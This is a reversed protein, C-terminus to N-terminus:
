DNPLLSNEEEFYESEDNQNDVNLLVGASFIGGDATLSLSGHYKQAIMSVSELGIGHGIRTTRPLGNKRFKITGQYPNEVSVGITEDSLCSAGVTITRQEVPLDKVAHLANEVFNGLISCLDSDHIPIEKPLNLNWDIITDQAEALSDYHAAVADVTTNACFRKSTGTSQTLLPSIYEILQQNESKQALRSIALLHQRFDHRVARTQEMFSCIQEYRKEELKLLTNEQQLHSYQVLTTSLVYILHYIVLTGIPILLMSILSISQIRGGMIVEYNNPTAFFVIASLAIPIVIMWLWIRNLHGDDLMIELENSVTFYFIATVAIACCICVLSTAVTRVPDPNFLEVPAMIYGSYMKCFSIFLVSNIFCFLKKIFSKAIVINYLIFFLPYFPLLALSTQLRYKACIGAALLTTILSCILMSTINFISRDRISKYLPLFALIGAPIALICELIYRLLLMKDIM